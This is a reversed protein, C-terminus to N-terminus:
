HLEPLVLEINENQLMELRQQTSLHHVKVTPCMLHDQMLFSSRLACPSLGHSPLFDWVQPLAAQSDSVGLPGAAVPCRTSLLVVCDPFWASRQCSPVCLAGSIDQMAAKCSKERGVVKLILAKVVLRCHWECLSLRALRLEPDGLLLFVSCVCSSDAQSQSLNWINFCFSCQGQNARAHRTNCSQM